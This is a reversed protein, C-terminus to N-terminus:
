SGEKQSTWCHGFHIITHEFAAWPRSIGVRITEGANFPVHLTDKGTGFTINQEGTLITGVPMDDRVGGADVPVHLVGGEAASTRFLVAPSGANLAPVYTWALRDEIHREQAVLEPHLRADPLGTLVLCLILGAAMSAFRWKRSRPFVALGSFILIFMPGSVSGQLAAFLISCLGMVRALLSKGNLVILVGSAIVFASSQSDFPLVAAVGLLFLCARMFLNERLQLAPPLAGAILGASLWSFGRTLLLFISLVFWAGLM